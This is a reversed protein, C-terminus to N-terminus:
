EAAEAAVKLAALTAAIGEHAAVERAAIEEGAREGFREQFFVEGETLMEWSEM